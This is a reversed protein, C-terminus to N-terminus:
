RTCFRRRAADQRYATSDVAPCATRIKSKLATVEDWTLAMSDFVIPIDGTPAAIKEQLTALKNEARATEFIVKFQQEFSKVVTVNSRGELKLMNEFTDHEANDSYNYSGNYLTNEDVIMYKNHMQPAYSHDWRYAYYKYRVDIGAKGLEYGFLFGKDMCNRKKAESDGAATLCTVLDRKQADDGSKSIYEQADLYVKIELDPSAQKKAILAEAIPRSRMHGTAIHISRTASNIGAIMADAVTNAGTTSFTTDGRLKFNSSTFFVDTGATSPIMADTIQLTSLDQPIAPSRSSFDRSHTWMLDFERQFRLNLEANKKIVLTNEDFTTAASNSWNASGTILTATKAKTVEDRPGDVIMFKHHMIKNIYRVDIGLAELKGSMSGAKAASEMREHDGGDNFVLRVKVGRAVARGLADRIGVDSYSYIAVDISKTARDAEQAIRVNHSSAAPQPSFVVDRASIVDDESTGEDAPDDVDGACGGILFSSVLLGILAVSSHRM